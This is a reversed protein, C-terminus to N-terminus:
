EAALILDLSSQAVACTKDRDFGSDCYTISKDGSSATCCVGFDEDTQTSNKVNKSTFSMMTGALILGLFM